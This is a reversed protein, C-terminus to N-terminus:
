DSDERDDYDPYGKGMLGSGGAGPRRSLKYVLWIVLALPLIVLLGVRAGSTQLSCGSNLVGAAFLGLWEALRDRM